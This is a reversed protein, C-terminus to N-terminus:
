FFLIRVTKTTKYLWVRASSSPRTYHPHRALVPEDHSDTCQRRTSPISKTFVARWSSSSYLLGLCLFSFFTTYEIRNLSFFYDSLLLSQTRLPRKLSLPFPPPPTPPLLDLLLESTLGQAVIGTGRNIM